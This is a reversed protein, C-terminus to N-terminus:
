RNHRWFGFTLGTAFLCWLPYPALAVGAVTNAQAARRTLDVSSVTLLAAGATAAGLKHAGFFLQCWGANLALNTLLAAKYSTASEGSDELADIAVASTAAVDAYLATWVVPIAGNPPVVSPRELKDYWGSLGSKVALSGVLAATATAASTAAVTSLRVTSLGM